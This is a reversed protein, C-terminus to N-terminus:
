SRSSRASETARPATPASPRARRLHDLAALMRNRSWRPRLRLELYPQTVGASALPSVVLDSVAERSPAGEVLYIQLTEPRAPLAESTVSQVSQVDAWRLTSEAEDNPLRYRIGTADCSVVERDPHPSGAGDVREAFLDRLIESARADRAPPDLREWDEGLLPQAACGGLTPLCLISLLAVARM